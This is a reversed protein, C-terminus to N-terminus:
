LVCAAPRHSHACDYERVHPWLQEKPLYVASDGAMVRIIYAGGLKGSGLGIQEEEVSYSEDVSPDLILRTLLDIRHVM